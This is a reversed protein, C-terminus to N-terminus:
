RPLAVDEVTIVPAPAGDVASREGRVGVWRWYFESLQVSAGAKEKLLAVLNGSGDVLVQTVGFAALNDPAQNVFGQAAFAGSAALKEPAAATGTAVDAPKPLELGPPLPLAEKTVPKGSAAVVQDAATAVKAVSDRIRKASMRVDVSAHDNVVQDLQALLPKWDIAVAAHADAQVKKLGDAYSGQAIQWLREADSARGSQQELATSDPLKLLSKKVYAVANPIYVPHWQGIAPGKDEIVEGLQLEAVIQSKLTSDDRARSKDVKVRWRKGGDIPEVVKDHIWARGERPFRITYWDAVGHATGIIEVPAGAELMCAVKANLSPGYRVNGKSAMTASVASGAALTAADNAGPTAGADAASLLTSASFVTLISISVLALRM